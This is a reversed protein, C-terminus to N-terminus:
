PTPAAKITALRSSIFAPNDDFQVNTFRTGQDPSCDPVATLDAFGLDKTASVLTGAVSGDALILASGSDAHCANGQARDPTTPRPKVDINARATLVQVDFSKRLGPYRDPHDLRVGLDDNEDDNGPLVKGYGIVLGPSQQVVPHSAVPMPTLGEPASALQIVAIDHRDDLMDFTTGDGQPVTAIARPHIWDSFTGVVDYTRGTLGDGFGVAVVTRTQDTKREVCHAATLVANPAILTAGCDPRLIEGTHPGVDLRFVLFGMSPYRTPELNGGVVAQSTAAPDSTTGVNCGVAFVLALSALLPALASTKM